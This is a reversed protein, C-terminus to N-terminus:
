RSCTRGLVLADVRRAGSSLLVNSCESITAGSTFVDDILLLHRGRIRPESSDDTIFSGRVNDFREDRSAGRQEYHKIQQLCDLMPKSILSRLEIAIINAQNFGREDLKTDHAPVPVLADISTLEPHRNEIVSTLAVSLPKAIDRDKKLDLIHRTLQPYPPGVYYCGMAYVRNFGTLSACSGCSTYIPQFQQFIPDIPAACKQCHFEPLLEYEVYFRDDKYLVIKESSYEVRWSMKLSNYFTSNLVIHVSKRM